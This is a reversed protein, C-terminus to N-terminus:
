DGVPASPPGAVMATPLEDSTVEEVEAFSSTLSTTLAVAKQDYLDEESSSSGGQVGTPYFTAIVADFPIVPPQSVKVLGDMREFEVDVKETVNGVNVEQEFSGVPIGFSMFDIAPITVQMSNATGNALKLSYAYMWETFKNRERESMFTLTVTFGSEMVHHPYFTSNNKSESQDGSIDPKEALGSCYASTTGHGNASFIALSRISAM